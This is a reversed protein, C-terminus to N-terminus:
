RGKGSDYGERLGLLTRRVLLYMFFVFGLMGVLVVTFLPNAVLFDLAEGVVNAPAIM